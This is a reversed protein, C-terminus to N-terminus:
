GQYLRAQLIMSVRKAVKAVMAVVVRISAMDMFIGAAVTLVICRKM